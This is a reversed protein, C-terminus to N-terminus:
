KPFLFTLALRYTTGEPGNPSSDLWHRVAVQLSIPQEGIKLLQTAMLHLPISWQEAKWDYTAEMNGGFTTFTKTTYAVFPQLFTSNIDNRADDGAVSWIHNFLGGYTWGSEQKLAVATPGIGWKEAGLLDDSATPLLFVPGAGWIWGSSTPQKPSFFLSQVVDGLGSADGGGGPLVDEQDILPVITRSILNWDENLSFPIVPQINLTYRSGADDAGIDDDYNLQIPLSIMAAIPNQTKKALEAQDDQAIVAPTFTMLGTLIILNQLFTKISKLKDIVLM